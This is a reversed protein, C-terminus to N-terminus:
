ASVDNRAVGLLSAIETTHPSQKTASGTRLSACRLRLAGRLSRNRGSKVGNPRSSISATLSSIERSTSSNGLARSLAHESERKYWWASVRRFGSVIRGELGSLFILVARHVSVSLGLSFIREVQRDAR